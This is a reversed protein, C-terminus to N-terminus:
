QFMVIFASGVTTASIGSGDESIDLVAVNQARKLVFTRMICLEKPAEQKPQQTKQPHM